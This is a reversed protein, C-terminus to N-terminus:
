RIRHVQDLLRTPLRNAGRTAALREAKEKDRQRQRQAVTESSQDLDSLIEDRSIKGAEEIRPGSEEGGSVGIREEQVPAIAAVATASESRGV